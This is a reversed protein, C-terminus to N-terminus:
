IMVVMVVIHSVSLVLVKFIGITAFIVSKQCIQKTLM